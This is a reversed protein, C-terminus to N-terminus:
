TLNEAIAPNTILRIEEFAHCVNETFWIQSQQGKNGQKLLLVRAITSSKKICARRAEYDASETPNDEILTTLAKWAKPDEILTVRSELYLGIHSSGFKFTTIL